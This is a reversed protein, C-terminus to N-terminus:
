IDSAEAVERRRRTMLYGVAVVFVAGAVAAVNVYFL